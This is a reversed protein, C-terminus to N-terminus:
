GKLTIDMMNNKWIAELMTRTKEVYEFNDSNPIKVSYNLQAFSVASFSACVITLTLVFTILAFTARSNRIKLMKGKEKQKPYKKDNRGKASPAGAFSFGELV